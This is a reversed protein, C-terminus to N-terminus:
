QKMIRAMTIANMKAVNVVRGTENWPLLDIDELTIEISSLSELDAVMRKFEARTPTAMHAYWTFARERRDDKMSDATAYCSKIKDKKDLEPMSTKKTAERKRRHEERRREHAEVVKITLLNDADSTHDMNLSSSSTDLSCSSADLDSSVSSNLSIDLSTMSDGMQGKLLTPRRNHYGNSKVVATDERGDYRGKDKKDKKKDKKGKKETNDKKLSKMAEKTVKTEELNWPLLDVDDRTIASDNAYYDVISCMSAKTPKAYHKYWKYAKKRRRSQDKESREQQSLPMSSSTREATPALPTDAAALTSESSKSCDWTFSFATNNKSSSQM